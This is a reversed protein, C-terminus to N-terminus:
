VDRGPMAVAPWPMVLAHRHAMCACEHICCQQPKSQQEGGSAALAQTAKRVATTDYSTGDGTAGLQTVDFVGWAAAAHVANSAAAVPVVALMAVAMISPRTMTAHAHEHMSHM